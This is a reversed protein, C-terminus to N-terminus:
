STKKDKEMMAMGERIFEEPTFSNRGFKKGLNVLLKDDKVPTPLAAPTSRVSSKKCPPKV